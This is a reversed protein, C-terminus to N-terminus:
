EGLRIWFTTGDEITSLFDVEGGLHKEGLLKMSYTGLGRGRAAKTSFSRQFIRAQVAPPIVGDNWVSLRLAGPERECSVRVRGGEPVAELANRTMNALVRLLLAPDTELRAGAPLPLIELLRGEASANSAFVTELEAFVAAVEVPVREAVLAGREALVVARHDHIDREIRRSLVDIREAAAVTKEPDSTRQLRMSWGRLGAVTNLVDHFFIQEYADRRKEASIDRLSVATFPAGSLEVPTARIRLELAAGDTRRILCESEVPREQEQSRLISGLAGCTECERATACGRPSANVCGIAEGLRIGVVESVTAADVAKGNHAVIERRGGLVVLAADVADLLASLVPSAAAARVDRTLEEPTSRKADPLSHWAGFPLQLVPLPPTM